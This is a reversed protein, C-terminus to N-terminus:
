LKNLDNYYKKLEDIKLFEFTNLVKRNNAMRERYMLSYQGNEKKAFIDDENIISLKKLYQLRLFANVVQNVSLRQNSQFTQLFQIHNIFSFDLQLDNSENVNLQTLSRIQPLYDCFNQDVKADNLELKHLNKLRSIFPSFQDLNKINSAYISQINLFKDFFNNPLNDIYNELEDYNM